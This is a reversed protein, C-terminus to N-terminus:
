HLNQTPHTVFDFDAAASVVKSKPAMSPFKKPKRRAEIHAPKISNDTQAIQIELLDAGVPEPIRDKTQQKQHM